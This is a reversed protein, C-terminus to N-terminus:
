FVALITINKQIIRERVEDILKNLEKLKEPALAEQSEVYKLYDDVELKLSKKIELLENQYQSVLIARISGIASNIFVIESVTRPLNVGNLSRWWPYFNNNKDRNYHAFLANRGKKIGDYSKLAKLIPSISWM